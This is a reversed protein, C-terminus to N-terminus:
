RLQSSGGLEVLEVQRAEQAVACPACFTWVCCDLCLVHWTGSRLGYTRRIQARCLVVVLILILVSAGYTIFSVACLLATIFVAPYFELFGVKDNSATEAWRIWTCCWSCFCLQLDRGCCEKAEFLEHNFLEGHGEELKSKGGRKMCERYLIAILCVQFMYSGIFILTSLFRKNSDDWYEDRSQEYHIMGVEPDSERAASNASNAKDLRLNHEPQKSDTAAKLKLNGRLGVLHPDAVPQRQKQMNAFVQQNRSM